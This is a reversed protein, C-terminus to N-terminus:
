ALCSQMLKTKRLETQILNEKTKQLETSFIEAEIALKKANNLKSYMKKLNHFCKEINETKYNEVFKEFFQVESWIQKIDRCDFSRHNKQIIKRMSNAIEEIIATLLEKKLSPAKRDLSNAVKVLKAIVFSIYHRLETLEKKDALLHKYAINSDIGISEEAYTM